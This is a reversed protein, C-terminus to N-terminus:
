QKKLFFVEKHGLKTERVEAQHHGGDAESGCSGHDTHRRHGIGRLRYAGFDAFRQLFCLFQRRCALVLFRQGLQLFGICDAAFAVV